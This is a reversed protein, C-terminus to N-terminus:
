QHIPSKVRSKELFSVLDEHAVRYTGMFKYGQLLGSVVWRYVSRPPVNLFKAIDSISYFRVGSNLFDYELQNFSNM